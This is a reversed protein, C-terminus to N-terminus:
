AVPAVAAYRSFVRHGGRRDVLLVAYADRRGRYAPADMGPSGIPMGPVALGLADPRAVLLRAIDAAPVHGEVVYGGVQATHCAGYRTPLGLDARRGANGTDHATVRFGHREVHAIWARCCGCTPDKWVIMPLPEAARGALPLSAAALSARLFRRRSLSIETM